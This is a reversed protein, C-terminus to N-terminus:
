LTLALAVAAGANLRGWGHYSNANPYNAATNKLCTFVQARTLSPRASWVLAAIGAAMATSCSSGGIYTPTTGSMAYSLSTREDNANREMTVTFDVQSGDHCTNCTNGSEDTGTVANCQSFAAPYVVGWWSTWSFSTGAAAFLMKGNNNAFIVGDELVSSYFPTGISMSIIKISANNGMQVLANKVGTRESSKDLVVDECGRIFHLNSKYAVGTTAGLNNRPGVALGSMSTGHTCTSNASTGWTFGTSVTRGVNSDGNNFSSGLLSQTASIGADIVGITVGQGQATGWATPISVNNFNWPLRCNSPTINTWDSTNLPETSGGCGSTSRDGAEEWEAPRYDLPEIYRINELNSLQTLVALDTLKITLIPLVPDDELIFSAPDANGLGKSVLEILADHVAKWEPDQLDIEHLIPHVDAIHAPKYGIAIANDGFQAASWIFHIDVWSWRFDNKNRVFQQIAADIEERSLQPRDLPPAVPNKKEVLVPKSAPDETSQPAPETKKCSFVSLLALTFLLYLVKRM